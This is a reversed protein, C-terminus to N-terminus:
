LRTRVESKVQGDINCDMNYSWRWNIKCTYKMERSFVMNKVKRMKTRWCLEKALIIAGVSTTMGIGGVEGLGGSVGGPLGEGVGGFLGYKCPDKRTSLMLRKSCAASFNLWPNSFTSTVVLCASALLSAPLCMSAPCGFVRVELNSYLSTSSTYTGQKMAM